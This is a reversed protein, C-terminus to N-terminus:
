CVQAYLLAAGHKHPSGPTAPLPSPSCCTSHTLQVQLAVWSPHPSVRPPLPPHSFVWIPSHCGFLAVIGLHPREASGFSATASFHLTHTPRQLGTTSRSPVFCRRSISPTTLHEASASGPFPLNAASSGPVQLGAQPSSTPARLASLCISVLQLALRGRHPLFIASAGDSGGAPVAGWFRGTDGCFPELIRRCGEGFIGGM